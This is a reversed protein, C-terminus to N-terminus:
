RVGYLLTRGPDLTSHSMEYCTPKKHHLTTLGGGLGLVPLGGRILQQCSCLLINETKWWIQLSDGGNVAQCHETSHHHVWM